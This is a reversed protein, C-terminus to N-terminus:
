PMPGIVMDIRTTMAMAPTTTGNQVVSMRMATSMSLTSNPVVNTLSLSMRGTGTTQMEDLHAVAGPPMSPDAIDQPPANQEITVDLVVNDGSRSALTFTATQALTLGNVTVETSTQWRAGLGVAESPFPAVMQEMSDEISTMMQAASSGASVNIDGDIFSGRNDIVNWGSMTGVSALSSQLAQMMEPAVGETPLVEYRDLSFAMRLNGEPTAEVTPISMIMRMTPLTQQQTGTAPGEMSMSMNMDMQMTQPTFGSFDYRLEERPEAGADVLVVSPGAQAVLGVGDLLDGAQAPAEAWAADPVVCLSLVLLSMRKATNM